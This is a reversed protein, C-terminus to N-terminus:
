SKATGSTVYLYPVLLLLTTEIEKIKNTDEM